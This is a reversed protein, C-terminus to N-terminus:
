LDFIVESVPGKVGLSNVSQCRLSNRGPHIKWTFGPKDQEFKDRGDIQILFYSFNPTFTDMLLELRSRSSNEKDIRLSVINLPFYLEEPNRTERAVLINKKTYKDSWKLSNMISNAEPHWHPYARSFWDNRMRVYFEHYFSIFFMVMGPRVIKKAPGEYAFIEGRGDSELIQHLELVNLPVGNKEYFLNNNVDILIWKSFENSWFETVVHGELLGVYRAQIGIALACQVFVTSYESCFFGEGKGARELIDLANFNYPVDKPRKLKWRGKVWNALILVKDFESDAKATLEKLRYKNRLLTLEQNDFPQYAFNEAYRSIKPNNFKAIKGSLHNGLYVKLEDPGSNINLQSLRGKDSPGFSIDVSKKYLRDYILRAYLNGLEAASRKSINVLINVSAYKENLVVLSLMFGFIAIILIVATIIIRRKKLKMKEKLILPNRTKM